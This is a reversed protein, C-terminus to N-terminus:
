RRVHLGAAVSLDSSMKLLQGVITAHRHKDENLFPDSPNINVLRDRRTVGLATIVVAFEVGVFATVDFAVEAVAAFGFSKGVGYHADWEELVPWSIDGKFNRSAEICDSIYSKLERNKYVRSLLKRQNIEQFAVLYRRQLMDPNEHLHDIFAMDYDVLNRIEGEQLGKLHHQRWVEIEERDNIKNFFDNATEATLKLLERNSLTAFMIANCKRNIDTNTPAHLGIDILVGNPDRLFKRWLEEDGVLRNFAQDIQGLDKRVNLELSAM